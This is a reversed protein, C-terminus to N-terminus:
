NCRVTLTLQILSPSTRRLECLHAHFVKVKRERCADCSPDKRRQRYARKHASLMSVSPHRPSLQSGSFASDHLMGPDATGHLPSTSNPPPGYGTSYAPPPLATTIFMGAPAAAASTMSPHFTGTVAYSMPSPQVSSPHSENPSHGHGSDGYPANAAFHDPQQVSHSRESAM